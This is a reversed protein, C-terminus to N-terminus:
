TGVPRLMFPYNVNVSTGGKPKPFKWTMMRNTICKEVNKNNLSSKKINSYNLMGSASIEFNVTVMGELSPNSILQDEYCKRVQNIYKAITANIAYRSLGGDLVVDNSSVSIASIGNGEGSAVLTNGYGGKGGGAGKTGVGGLGAVGTNGVTTKKLGKGLGTLMEGGSGADGGAGAGANAKKLKQPVGGTVNKLKSSGVLGLFGLNRKVARNAMQSKTLPKVKSAPKPRSVNVTDQQKIITVKLPPKTEEIQDDIKERTSSFYILPIIFFSLLFFVEIPRQTWRGEDNSDILLSNFQSSTNSLINFKGNPTELCWKNEDIKISNCNEKGIVEFHNNSSKINFIFHWNNSVFEFGQKKKLVARETAKKRSTFGFSEHLGFENTNLNSFVKVLEGDTTEISIM